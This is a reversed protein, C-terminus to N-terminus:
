ILFFVFVFSSLVDDVLNSLNPQKFHRIKIEESLTYVKAVWRGNNGLRKYNKHRKILQKRISNVWQWTLIFIKTLKANLYCKLSEEIFKKSNKNKRQKLILSFQGMHSSIWIKSLLRLLNLTKSSKKYYTLCRMLNPLILLLSVSMSILNGDQFHLIM